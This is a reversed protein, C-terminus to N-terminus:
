DGRMWARAEEVSVYLVPVLILTVGTAFLIGFGLSLAMPILFRTHVSTEFIMPALGLFTTLSTLLIPRVRSQMGQTAAQIANLGGDRLKNSTTVLVLSDNVVVGALAVIGMISILSLNYGMLLHGAVAGIFGFPIPIMVILPQVYSKFPIALSAFIAFLALAFYRGLATLSENRSRNDGEFSFKLEPYKKLLEPLTKTKLAAMVKQNSAVGKRLEASISIIRQGQERDIVTPAHKRAFKAVQVLPVMAGSATRIKLQQLDEISSRQQKPLRLMVKVEDRGRQERLAEVGFFASRIQMAIDQSSLGFDSAAPKLQYDFQVKGAAFSNEINTLDSFRRLSMTLENAAKELVAHDHHSLHVEVSVGASPGTAANFNIAVVGPIVHIHEEWARAFESSDFDRQDSPVLALEVSVIHGGTKLAQGGQHRNAKSEGLRTFMGRMDEAQGLEALAVKASRELERQMLQTREVPSGYALRATATVVDGEVKPFFEYPVIGSGVLGVTIALISLALSFVIARHRMAWALQPAFVRHILWKLGADVKGQLRALLGISQKERSHALHAPLVFFSEILSFVLTGIAIYPIFKLIKGMIGPVLMLPAFAIITTMSAFFVPLAMEKTGVISARMRSLGQQRKAFINEGIVIADDVVMGLIIIFAFLTIMNISMDFVPMLLFAGLFSIPIGLAVWFALRIELVLALIIFVLALGMAANKALLETRETLAESNDDWFNLQVNKPLEARLQTSYARLAKSVQRPTEDGIRYATLRVAPLGNFFSARDLDQYGDGINAIESLHLAAGQTNGRLVISGYQNGHKKRESVRVLIEGSSTKLGGGPLELASRRVATAIAQLSLDYAELKERSVEIHIERPKIGQIDIQSIAKSALLESRAREAIAHLSQLDQDGSIILSIVARRRSLLSVIPKEAEQPFTSIRDVANKVDALVKDPNAGLLLEIQVSASGENSSSYIRKVGDLGRVAEEISLVLGQEVEEPSAGPYPVQVIITDLSFEPFVEQKVTLLGLLGGAIIIAMLLNAAVPNRAMWSIIGRKDRRPIKLESTTM